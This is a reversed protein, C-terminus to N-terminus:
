EVTELLAADVPEIRDTLLQDTAPALGKEKRRRASKAAAKWFDTVMRRDKRRMMSANHQRYYLVAVDLITFPIGGDRMRLALDLDEAYRFDPDFTGIKKFVRDRFMWIGPNVGCQTETASDREPTLTRGNLSEFKTLLGGVADVEPTSVLRKMQLGFRNAPLVDDADLFVIVDGTARALGANRAEGPSSLPHVHQEVPLRNSWQGCVRETERDDAPHVVIVEHVRVDQREISRIADPLFGAMFACPIIVSVSGTM